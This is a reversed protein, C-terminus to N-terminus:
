AKEKKTTIKVLLCFVGRNGNAVIRRIALGKVVFFCRGWTVRTRIKIGALNLPYLLMIPYYLLNKSALTLSPIDEGLCLCGIGQCCFFCCFLLEATQEFITPIVPNSGAVVRGGSTYELRASSCGSHNPHAFITIKLTFLM